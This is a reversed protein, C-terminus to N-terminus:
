PPSAVTKWDECRDDCLHDARAVSDALVKAMGFTTKLGLLTSRKNSGSKLLVSWWERQTSELSILVELGNSHLHKFPM